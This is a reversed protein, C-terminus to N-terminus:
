CRFKEIDIYTLLQRDCVTVCLTLMITVSKMTGRYGNYSYSLHTRYELMSWCRYTFEMYPISRSIDIKHDVNGNLFHNNVITQTTTGLSHQANM